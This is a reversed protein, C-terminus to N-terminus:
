SRQMRQLQELESTATKNLKVAWDLMNKENSTRAAGHEGPRQVKTLAAQLARLTREVELMDVDDRTEGRASASFISTVDEVQVCPSTTRPPSPVAESSRVDVGNLDPLSCPLHPEMTGILTPSTKSRPQVPQADLVLPEVMMSTEPPPCTRTRAGDRLDQVGSLRRSISGGSCTSRRRGVNLSIKLNEIEDRLEKKMERLDKLSATNSGRLDLVIKMFETFDIEKPGNSKGEDSSDDDEEEDEDPEFITPAMDILGIPDVGVENLLTVAKSDSVLQVFEEESLTGSGNADLKSMVEKMKSQLALVNMEEKETAAVASVVECLVGILMNMVMLAACIIFIFFVVAFIPSSEAIVDATYGLNDLFVGEILLKYMSAPVSYFYEEGVSTGETLQRMAIAFLYLLIVLLCMTFFVSRSAALMGKILIM